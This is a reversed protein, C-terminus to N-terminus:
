PFSSLRLLTQLPNHPALQINWAFSVAYDPSYLPTNLLQDDNPAKGTALAAGGHTLKYVGKKDGINWLKVIYSTAKRVTDNLALEGPLFITTTTLAQYVNVLGAGQQATTAFLSSNYIKVPTATSQFLSTAVSSKPRCIGNNAGSSTTNPAPNGISALFLALTRSFLFCKYSCSSVRLIIIELSLLKSLRRRISEM